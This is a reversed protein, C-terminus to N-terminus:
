FKVLTGRGTSPMWDGTICSAATGLDTRAQYCCTALSHSQRAISAVQCLRVLPLRGSTVIHIMREPAHCILEERPLAARSAVMLGDIKIDTYYLTYCLVIAMHYLLISYFLMIYYVMRCYASRPFTTIRGQKRHANDSECVPLFASHGPGKESNQRVFPSLVLHVLCHPGCIM